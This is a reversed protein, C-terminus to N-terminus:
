AGCDPARSRFFWDPLRYQADDLLSPYPLSPAAGFGVELPANWFAAPTVPCSLFSYVYLDYREYHALHVISKDNQALLHLRDPRGLALWLKGFTLNTRMVVNAITTNPSQWDTLEMRGQFTQSSTDFFSPQSGSWVWDVANLSPYVESVWANEQLLAVAEDPTTAGPQIGAWCPMACGSPPSLLPYLESADYPRSCVAVIAAYAVLVLPFILKLFPRAM